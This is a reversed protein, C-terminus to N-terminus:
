FGVPIFLVLFIELDNRFKEVEAKVACFTLSSREFPTECLAM